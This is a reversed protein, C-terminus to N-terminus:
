PRAKCLQWHEQEVAENNSISALMKKIETEKFSHGGEANQLLCFKSRELKQGMAQILAAFSFGHCADSDLEGLKQLDARRFLLASVDQISDIKDMDQCIGVAVNQQRTLRNLAAPLVGPELIIPKFMILLYSRRAKGAALNIFCAWSAREPCPIIRVLTQSAYSGAAKSIKSTCETDMLILELPPWFSTQFFPALFKELQQLENCAPIIISVSPTWRVALKRAQAELLELPVLGDFGQVFRKHFLAKDRPNSGDFDKDFDYEVLTCEPNYEYMDQAQAILSLENDGAHNIYGPYFVTNKYVAGLWSARVMGFSAFSGHWKGDNFALLGKGSKELSDHACKLWGRGPWVDQALYVLYKATIRAFTDNLTKIFGQRLSDMVVLIKCPMNARRQLVEATKLGQEQHICPMIVVIGEPDSFSFSAIERIDIVQIDQNNPM